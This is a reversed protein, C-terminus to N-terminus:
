RLPILLVMSARSLHPSKYCFLVLWLFQLEQEPYVKVWRASYKDALFFLSALTNILLSRNATTPVSRSVTAAHLLRGDGESCSAFGIAASGAGGGSGFVGHGTLSALMRM